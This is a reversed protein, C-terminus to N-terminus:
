APPIQWDSSFLYNAPSGIFTMHATQLENCAAAFDATNCAKIFVRVHATVRPNLVGVLRGPTYDRAPNLETPGILDPSGHGVVALIDGDELMPLKWNLDKQTDRIMVASWGQNHRSCDLVFNKATQAVDVESTVCWVYVKSM